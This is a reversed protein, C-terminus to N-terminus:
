TLTKDLTMKIATLESIHYLIFYLLCVKLKEPDMEEAMQQKKM